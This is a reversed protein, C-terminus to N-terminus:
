DIDGKNLPLYDTRFNLQVRGMISAYERTNSTKTSDFTSVKVRGGGINASGFLAGIVAIGKGASISAGAGFNSSKSSSSKRVSESKSEVEFFLKTEIIGNEVVIRQVGMKVIEQLLTYKNGSIKSKVVDIIENKQNAITDTEVLASSIVTGESDTVELADTNGTSVKDDDDNNKSTLISDLTNTESLQDTEDFSDPWVSKAFDLVDQDSVGDKTDNIFDRISMSSRELLEIYNETQKTNLRILSDFTDTLLKSTFEPFGIKNVMALKNPVESM